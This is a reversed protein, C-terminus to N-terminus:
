AARGSEVHEKLGNWIGREVRGGVLGFVPGLLRLWGKPHVQWDWRMTTGGGDETFSLTGSTDMLSSTTRSALRHPREVGTLEVDMPTEAKGMYARFRTGPGIPEPTLLEVRTMDPNYSPENRSDAVVDFVTGVPADIHVEGAIHAV